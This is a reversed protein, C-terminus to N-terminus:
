LKVSFKHVTRREVPLSIGYCVLGAACCVWSVTDGNLPFPLDEGRALMPTMFGFLVGTIVTGVIMFVTYIKNGFRAHLIALFVGLAELFLFVGIGLVATQMASLKGAEGAPVSLIVAATVVVATTLLRTCQMGVFAERRTSGFGLAIPLHLTHQTTILVMCILGGLFVLTPSAIAFMQQLAFGDEAWINYILLVYLIGGLILAISWDVAEKLWFRLRM